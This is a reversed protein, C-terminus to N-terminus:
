WERKELFRRRREPVEDRDSRKCNEEKQLQAAQQRGRPANRPEREKARRKGHDMTKRREVTKRGTKRREVEWGKWIKQLNTELETQKQKKM